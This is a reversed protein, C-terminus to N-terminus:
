YVRIEARALELVLERVKEANVIANSTAESMITTLAMEFETTGDNANSVIHALEHGVVGIYWEVCYYWHSGPKCMRELSTINVIITRLPRDAIGEFKPDMVAYKIAVNYDGYHILVSAIKELVEVAIRTEPKMEEKKVERGIRKEIYSRLREVTGLIHELSYGIPNPCYIHKAGVYQAYSYLEASHVVVTEEGYLENFARRIIPYKDATVYWFTDMDAEVALSPGAKVNCNSIMCAMLRKLLSFADNYMSASDVVHKWVVRVNDRLSGGSPIRRSEDIVINFLNYSFCADREAAEKMTSVYIDRVYIYPENNTCSKDVVDYWVPREMSVEQYTYLKCESPLGQIFRNKFEDCLGYGSIEVRTGAIEPLGKKYCVCFIDFPRGEIERTVFTPLIEKDGSRMLVKIGQATAALLSLKLGEGFKGRQWPKKESTGVLLHHISLGRGTDEVLTVSGVDPRYEVRCPYETPRYGTVEHVEDLANQVVERFLEWIGWNRTEVYKKTFGYEIGDDYGMERCKDRCSM